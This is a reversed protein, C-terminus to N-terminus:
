HILSYRVLDSTLTFPSYGYGHRVRKVVGLNPVLFISDGRWPGDCYLAYPSFAGVNTFLTDICLRAKYFLTADGGVAIGYETEIPTPTIFVESVYPVSGNSDTRRTLVRGRDNRFIPFLFITADPGLNGQRPEWWWHGELLKASLVFTSDLTTGHYNQTTYTDLYVWKNGIAAPILGSEPPGTPENGIDECSLGLVVFLALSVVLKRREKMPM